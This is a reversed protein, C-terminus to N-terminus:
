KPLNSPTSNQGYPACQVTLHCQLHIHRNTASPGVGNIVAEVEPGCPLGDSELLRWVVAEGGQVNAARLWRLPLQDGAVAGRAVVVGLGPARSLLSAALIVLLLLSIGLSVLLWCCATHVALM